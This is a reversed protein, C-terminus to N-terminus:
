LGSKIVTYVRITKGLESIFQTQQSYFQSYSNKMNDDYEFLVNTIDTCKGLYLSFYKALM